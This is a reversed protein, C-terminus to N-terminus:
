RLIEGLNVTGIVHGWLLRTEGIIGPETPRMQFHGPPMCNVEGKPVMGLIDTLHEFPIVM